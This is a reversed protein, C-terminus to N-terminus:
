CINEPLRQVSQWCLPFQLDATIVPARSLQQRHPVKAAGLPQYDRMFLVDALLHQLKVQRENFPLFILQDRSQFVSVQPNILQMVWRVRRQAVYKEELQLFDSIKLDRALFMFLCTSVM